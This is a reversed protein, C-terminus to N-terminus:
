TSPILAEIVEEALKQLQTPPLLAPRFHRELVFASVVGSMVALRREMAIRATKNLAKGFLMEIFDIDTGAFLANHLDLLKDRSQPRRVAYLKFELTLTSTEPDCVQEILWRKFIKPRKKLDTEEEIEKCVAAFKASVRHKMLALFLDEKSM